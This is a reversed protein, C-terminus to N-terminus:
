IESIVLCVLGAHQVRKPLRLIFSLQLLPAECLVFLCIDPLNQPPFNLLSPSLALVAFNILVTFFYFCPFPLKRPIFLRCTQLIIKYWTIITQEQKCLQVAAAKSVKINM